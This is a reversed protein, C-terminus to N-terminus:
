DNCSRYSIFAASPACAQVELRSLEGASGDVRFYLDVTAVLDQDCPRLLYASPAHRNPVGPAERYSLRDPKGKCEGRSQFEPQIRYHPPLTVLADADAEIRTVSFAADDNLLPDFLLDFKGFRRADSCM